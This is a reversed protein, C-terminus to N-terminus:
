VDEPKKKVEIVIGMGNDYIRYQSLISLALKDAIERVRREVNAQAKATEEQIIRAVELRVANMIAEEMRSPSTISAM